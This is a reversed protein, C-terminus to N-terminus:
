GSTHPPVRKDHLKLGDIILRQNDLVKRMLDEKHELNGQMKHLIEIQEKDRQDMRSDRSEQEELFRPVYGIPKGKSDLTENFFKDKVFEVLNNMVRWFTFALVATIGWPIGFRNAIDIFDMGEHAM